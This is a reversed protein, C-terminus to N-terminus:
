KESSDSIMEKIKTSSIEKTYSFYVVEAGRKKLEDEYGKWRETGKWDDGSFLVDYHYKEWAAVKDLDDQVVVKDVYRIASLIKMRDELSIIPLHGKTRLILEDSTVGVILFDCHEKARRLLNLHGVHFTDFAGATYGIIQKNDM